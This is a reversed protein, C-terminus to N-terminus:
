NMIMRYIGEVCSEGEGEVIVNLIDTEEINLFKFIFETEEGFSLMGIEKEKEINKIDSFNMPNGNEKRPLFSINDKMMQIIKSFKDQSVRASVYTEDNMLFTKIEM